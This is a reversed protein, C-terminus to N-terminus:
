KDATDKLRHFRTAACRPCPPLHEAHTLTLIAGCADCCLQGPAAVEDSYYAHAAIDLATLEVKTRDAVSLLLDWLEAEILELDMQLWAAHDKGAAHLHDALDKLDRYVYEAIKGADEHGIEGLLVAQERAWHLAKTLPTVTESDAENHDHDHRYDHSYGHGHGDLAQNIRAMMRRYAHAKPHDHPATM